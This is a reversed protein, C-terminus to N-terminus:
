PILGAVLEFERQQRRGVPDDMQKGILTDPAAQPFDLSASQNQPLFFFEGAEHGAHRIPAYLPDQEVNFTRAEVSVKSQVNSYLDYGELIGENNNLEDIFARAFLSHKSNGLSDYVPRVGGSSLVVRVRSNSVVKYWRTTLEESLEQQRRPVATRTLTGSYCSDAVVMVHKAKMADISDTISKNSVWNSNDSPSADVPLWYGRQSSRGLEGHGASM